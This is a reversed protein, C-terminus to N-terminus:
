AASMSCRISRWISTDCHLHAHHIQQHYKGHHQWCNRDLYQLDRSAPLPHHAARSHGLPLLLLLALAAFAPTGHQAGLAQLALAQLQPAVQSFRHGSAQSCCRALFPQQQAAPALACLIKSQSSHRGVGLCTAGARAQLSNAAQTAARSAFFTGSILKKPSHAHERASSLLMRSTCGRLSVLAPLGDSLALASPLTARGCRAIICRYTGIM